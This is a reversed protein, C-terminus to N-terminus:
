DTPSNLEARPPLQLHFGPGALNALVVNVDAQVLKRTPSLALEMVLTLAGLPTAIAEPLLGFADRERLYIYTGPKRASKYIFCQM